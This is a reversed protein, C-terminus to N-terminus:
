LWDCNKVLSTKTWAYLNDSECFQLKKNKDATLITSKESMCNFNQKKFFFFFFFAGLFETTCVQLRPVQFVSTLHGLGSQAVLRSGTEFWGVSCGCFSSVLFIQGGIHM